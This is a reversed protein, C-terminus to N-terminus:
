ENKSRAKVKVILKHIEKEGNLSHCPSHGTLPPYFILFEGSEATVSEGVGEWFGVDRAQEIEVSEPRRVVYYKEAASLPLQIDIYKAHAEFKVLDGVAPKLPSFDSNVWLEGEKLVHKGASLAKLDHNKLFEFAEAFLPNIAAFKETAALNGKSYLKPVILGDLRRDHAERPLTKLVQFDYALGYAKASPKAAALFRDYWGGGFGVRDGERTFALGPCLWCDVEAARPVVYEEGRKEPYVIEGPFAALFRTLSLETKFAKYACVLKLDRCLELLQEAIDIEAAIKYDVPVARRKERM